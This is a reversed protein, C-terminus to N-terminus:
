SVILKVAKKFDFPKLLDEGQEPIFNGRYYERLLEATDSITMIKINPVGNFYKEHSTRDDLKDLMNITFRGSLGSEINVSTLSNTLIIECTNILEFISKLPDIYKVNNKEWFEHESKIYSNKVIVGQEWVDKFVNYMGDLGITEKYNICGSIGHGVKFRTGKGIIEKKKIYGVNYVSKGYYALHSYGDFPFFIIDFISNLWPIDSEHAPTTLDHTFNINKVPRLIDIIELISLYNNKNRFYKTTEDHFAHASTIFIYEKANLEQVTKRMDNCNFNTVEVCNYGKEKMYLYLPNIIYEIGVGFFVYLINKNM